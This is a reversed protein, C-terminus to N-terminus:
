LPFGFFVMVTMLAAAPPPFYLWELILGWVCEM